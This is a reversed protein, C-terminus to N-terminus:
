RQRRCRSFDLDDQREGPRVEEYHRARPNWCEANDWRRSFRDDRYQRSYGYDRQRLGYDPTTFRGDTAPDEYWPQNGPPSLHARDAPVYPGYYKELQQQRQVAAPDYPYSRDSNDQALALPAAVVALTGLAVALTKM